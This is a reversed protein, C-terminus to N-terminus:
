DFVLLLLQSLLKFQNPFICSKFKEVKTSIILLIFPKSSAGCNTLLQTSNSWRNLILLGLEKKTWDEKIKRWVQTILKEWEEKAADKKVKATKWLLHNKGCKFTVKGSDIFM